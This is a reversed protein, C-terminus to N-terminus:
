GSHMVCEEPKILEATPDGRQLSGPSCPITCPQPKPSAPLQFSLATELWGDPLPHPRPPHVLFVPEPPLCIQTHIQGRRKMGTADRAFSGGGAEMEKNQLIPHYGRAAPKRCHEGGHLPVWGSHLRALPVMCPWTRPLCCHLSSSDQCRLLTPSLSPSPPRLTSGPELCTRAMHAARFCSWGTQHVGARGRSRKRSAQNTMDPPALRGEQSTGELDKSFSAVSHLLLKLLIGQHTVKAM